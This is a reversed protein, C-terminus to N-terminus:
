SSLEKILDYQDQWEQLFTMLEGDQIYQPFQIIFQELM